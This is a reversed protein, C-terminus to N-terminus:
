FPVDEDDGFDIVPENERISQDEDKRKSEAFYVQEAVVETSFRKKGEQDDWSRTQIRGTLAIQQGKSFYKECFDATKGWAIVSIFDAQQEGDKAFKRNVALTFSAVSTGNKTIRLDVDKTLRGLMGVFNM